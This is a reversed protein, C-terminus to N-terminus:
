MNKKYGCKDKLPRFLYYVQPQTRATGYLTPINPNKVKKLEDLMEQTVEGRRDVINCFCMVIEARLNSGVM